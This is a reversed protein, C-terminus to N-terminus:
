DAQRVYWIMYAEHDLASLEQATCARAVCSDDLSSLESGTKWICVYHGSSVTAGRHFILAAVKFECLHTDLNVSNCFQPVQINDLLRTIPRLDKRVARRDKTRVGRTEFRLLQLGLVDTRLHPALAHVCPQSHWAQLCDPLSTHGQIDLAIPHHLLGEDRLLERGEEAKRAEWRETMSPLRLRLLMHSMFEAADNQEFLKTWPSMLMVWPFHQSPNLNQPHRQIAGWIHSLQGLAAQDQPQLLALIHLVARLSCNM